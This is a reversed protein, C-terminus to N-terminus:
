GDADIDYEALLKPDVEPPNRVLEAVRDMEERTYQPRLQGHCTVCGPPLPVSVLAHIDKHGLTPPEKLILGDWTDSRNWVLDEWVPSSVYAIIKAPPANIEWEVLDVDESPRIFMGRLTCCWVFQSTGVSSWLMRAIERYRFNKAEHNWYQGQEPEIQLDLEDLRFSSPHHTWLQM